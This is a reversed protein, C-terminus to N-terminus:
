GKLVTAVTSKSIPLQAAIARCDLGQARLEFVRARVEPTARGHARPKPQPKLQQEKRERSNQIYQRGNRAWLVAAREAAFARGREYGRPCPTTLAREVSWGRALRESIKRPEIDLEQAWAKIIQTRGQWSVYRNRRTNENQQEQTEWRCNGPEYNGDNEIRGISMGSPPHGMDELFAHISNWRECVTIGRAGYHIYNDNRPNNCRQQMAQWSYYVPLGSLGHYDAM